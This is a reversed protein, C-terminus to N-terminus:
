EVTPDQYFHIQTVQIVGNTTTTNTCVFELKYYQNTAPSPITFEKDGATITGLDVTQLDSTFENDSAVKLTATASGHPVTLSVVVRKIADSIPSATTIYPYSVVPDDAGKAKAKGALVYEYKGGNNAFLACNLGIDDSLVGVAGTTYSSNNSTFTSSNIAVTYDRAFIATITVSKDPMTFVNDEVSVVDSDSDVVNLSWLYYGSDPTAVITVDAGAPASTSPITSISGNSSPTITIGHGNTFTANVTVDAAPMQFSNEVVDAVGSVGYTVSWSDLAYGSEPTASLTISTNVKATASSVDFTGGTVSGGSAKTITYDNNDYYVVASTVGVTNTLTASFDDSGDVPTIIVSKDDVADVNAVANTWTSGALTSAYGSTTATFVVKEIQMSRHSFTLTNNKYFRTSTQASPIFNNANTGGTQKVHTMSLYSHSWVVSAASESDYSEKSLDWTFSGKAAHAVRSFGAAPTKDLKLGIPRSHSRQFEIADSITWTYTAADTVVVVTGTYSGPAVVMYVDRAGAKDPGVFSVGSFAPLLSTTISTGTNGSVAFSSENEPDLASLDLSFNGAINGSANFTVSVVKETTYSSEAYIKFDVLAGLNYFQLANDSSVAGEDIMEATVDVVESVMPMAAFDFVGSNMTQAAPISLAVGTPDNQKSGGYPAWAYLKDGAEFGACTASFTVPKTETNVASNGPSTKLASSSTTVIYGIKDTSEWAGHKKEGTVDLIAKTGEDGKIAFTLSEVTATEENIIDPNEEEVVKDCSIFAAASLAAVLLLYFRKKM